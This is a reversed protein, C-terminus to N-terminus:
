TASESEVYRTKPFTPLSCQTVHAFRCVVAQLFIVPSPRSVCKISSRKKAGARRECLDEEPLDFGNETRSDIEIDGVVLIEREQKQEPDIQTRRLVANIRAVLELWVCHSIIEAPFRHRHYLSVSTRM